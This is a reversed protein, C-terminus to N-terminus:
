EQGEDFDTLVIRLIEHKFAPGAMYGYPGWGPRDEGARMIIAVPPLGDVLSAATSQLSRCLVPACHQLDRLSPADLASEQTRIVFTM